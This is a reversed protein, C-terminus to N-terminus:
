SIHLDLYFNGLMDDLKVCDFDESNDNGGKLYEKFDEIWGQKSVFNQQQEIKFMKSRERQLSAYVFRRGFQRINIRGLRIHYYTLYDRTM